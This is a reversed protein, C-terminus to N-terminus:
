AQQTFGMEAFSTATSKFTGEGSEKDNFVQMIEELLQDDYDRTNAEMVEILSNLSSEKISYLSGSGNKFKKDTKTIYNLNLLIQLAGRGKVPNKFDKQQKGELDLIPKDNDDKLIPYFDMGFILPLWEGKGGKKLSDPFTKNLYAKWDDKGFFLAKGEAYYISLIKAIVIAAEQNLDTVGPTNENITLKGMTNDGKSETIPNKIGAIKTNVKQKNLKRPM